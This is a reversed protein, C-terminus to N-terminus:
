ENLKLKTVAKVFAGTAAPYLDFFLHPEILELEMVVLRQNVIVVDIRTYLLTKNLKRYITEAMALHETSLQYVTESGRFEYNTRYEGSRPVKLVSHSYEGAIFVISIEGQTIESIFPQVLVGTKQLLQDIQRQAKSFDRRSFRSVEHASAGISPKIVVEGWQVTTLDCVTGVDCFVTPITEIGAQQLDRLYTKHFNWRLSPIPNWVEIQKQELLSLWDFYEHPHLHSDWCSRIIVMEFDSWEIHKQNWIVPLVEYGADRFPSILLRDSDSLRPMGKYTALAIRKM